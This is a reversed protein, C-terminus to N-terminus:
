MSLLVEMFVVVGNWHLQWVQEPACHMQPQWLGALGCLGDPM